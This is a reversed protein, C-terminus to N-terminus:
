LPRSPRIVGGSMVLKLGQEITMDTDHIDETPILALWGSTPNPTTPFFVYLAPRGDPLTAPVDSTIFGIAFLGPRPYEAIVTKRLSSRQVFVADTLQRASTYVEKVVPILRLLRDLQALVWRGLLGSAVAGLVVVAILLLVFGLVSAVWSPLQRLWVHNRLLPGLINGLHTVIFWFIVVTLSIPLLAALGTIFYNRLEKM